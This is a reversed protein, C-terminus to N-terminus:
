KIHNNNDSHFFTQPIGRQSDLTTEFVNQKAMQDVGERKNVRQLM